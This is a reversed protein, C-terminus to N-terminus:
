GSRDFIAFSTDTEPAHLLQFGTLYDRITKPVRNRNTRLNEAIKEFTLNNKKNVICPRGSIFRRSPIYEDYPESGLEDTSRAM